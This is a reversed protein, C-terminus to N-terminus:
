YPPGSIRGLDAQEDGKGEKRIWYVSPTRRGGGRGQSEFVDNIDETGARSYRRPWGKGKEHNCIHTLGEKEGRKRFFKAVLKGCNLAGSAVKGGKEGPRNINSAAVNKKKEPGCGVTKKGEKVEDRSRKKGRGKKKSLTAAPCARRKEGGRMFINCRLPNCKGARRIVFDGRKLDHPHKM